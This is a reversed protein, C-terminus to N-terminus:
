RLRAREEVELYYAEQASAIADWDYKGAWLRCAAGMNMVDDPPADLLALIAAAYAGADFATVPPCVPAAVENMPWADFILAVKGSANAESITMGFTEERSPMVTFRCAQLLSARQAPGVKGVQRVWPGLGLQLVMTDFQAQENGAGAVTLVPRRNVPIAAMAALLLDLGKARMEIRGLYLIGSGVIRELLLLEPAVGNPIVRCDARPHRSQITQRMQGTLVVFHRYMRIGYEEGWHFPLKLRRTYERAFWWQVSAILPLRRRHFLPVFTASSPPMTDEVLLDHPFRKIAWPLAALFTLHHSSGHNRVKHGLRVYRIGDKILEPTSGPFTPTLVTVEHRRALRKYIELTRVPGGGSLPNGVDDPDLHLIKM